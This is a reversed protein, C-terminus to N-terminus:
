FWLIYSSVEQRRAPAILGYIFVESPHLSGCVQFGSPTGSSSEAGAFAHWQAQTSPKAEYRVEEPMSKKKSLDVVTPNGSNVDAAADEAARQYKLKQEQEQDVEVWGERTQRILVTEKQRISKEPEKRVDEDSRKGDTEQMNPPILPSPPPIRKHPSIKSAPDVSPDSTPLTAISVLSEKTQSPTSTEQSLQIPPANGKLSDALSEETSPPGTQDSSHRGLGDEKTPPPHQELIRTM